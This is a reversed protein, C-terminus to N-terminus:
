HCGSRTIGCQRELSFRCTEGWANGTKGGHGHTGQKSTGDQAPHPGTRAEDGAVVDEDGQHGGSAEDCQEEYGAWADVHM